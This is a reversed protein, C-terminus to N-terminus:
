PTFYNPDLLTLDIKLSRNIVSYGITVEDFVALDSLGSQRLETHIRSHMDRLVQETAHISMDKDMNFEIAIISKKNDRQTRASYSYRHPRTVPETTLIVPQAVLRAKEYLEYTIKTIDLMIEQRLMRIFNKINQPNPECVFKTSSHELTGFSQVPEVANNIQYCNLIAAKVPEFLAKIFERNEHSIIFIVKDATFAVESLAKMPTLLNRLEDVGPFPADLKIPDKNGPAKINMASLLTSYTDQLNSFHAHANRATAAFIAQQKLLANKVKKQAEGRYLMKVVMLDKLVAIEKVGACFWVDRKDIFFSELIDYFAEPRDESGPSWTVTYDMGPEHKTEDIKKVISNIVDFLKM